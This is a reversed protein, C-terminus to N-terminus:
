RWEGQTLPKILGRRERIRLDNLIDATDESEDHTHLEGEVEDPIRDGTTILVFEAGDHDLFEPRLPLWRRDGFRELLEQPLQARGEPELGVGEPSGVTPNKVSILYSAEKEIHFAEQVTGPENPLELAYVLDTHDGYDVLAYVGEGAPRGASRDSRSLGLPETLEVPDDVIREVFGWYRSGPKEADPLKKHGIVLNRVRDGGAPKLVMFFRQVDAVSSAEATGEAPRYVFYIDGQELIDAM